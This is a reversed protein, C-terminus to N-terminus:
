SKFNGFHHNCNFIFKNHQQNYNEACKREMYGDFLRTSLDASATFACIRTVDHAIFMPFYRLLSSHNNRWWVTGDDSPRCHGAYLLCHPDSPQKLHALHTM